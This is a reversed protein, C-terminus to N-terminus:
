GATRHAGAGILRANARASGTRPRDQADEDLGLPSWKTESLVFSSPKDGSSLTGARRALTCAVTPASASSPLTPILRLTSRPPRTVITSAVSFPLSARTANVRNCIWCLRNSRYRAGGWRRRRSRRAAGADVGEGEAGIEVSGEGVDHEEGAELTHLPVDGYGGCSARHVIRRTFCAWSCM